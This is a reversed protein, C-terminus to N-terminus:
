GCKSQGCQKCKKCGEYSVMDGGCNLCKEYLQIDDKLFKQLCVALVKSFKEISASSKIIQDIIEVLPIRGGRLMTSVMRTIAQEEESGFRNIINDCNKFGTFEKGLAYVKKKVKIVTTQKIEKFKKVEDPDLLFAFVEYPMNNDIGIIVAYWQGRARVVDVIAPLIAKRKSRAGSPLINPKKDDNADKAILVGARSGERYITCGKCGSKWAETYVQSILDVTAEKPLNVTVSISHDVYQQMAGQMRIKELWDVDATTANHYPSQKILEQLDDYPMMSLYKSSEYYSDNETIHTNLYWEVLKHHVVNYEVFLDGNEDKFHYKHGVEVKRRRKYIPLFVPEIGSTTQTMLSVTGTPAITLCHINRRGYRIYDRYTSSDMDAIMRNIFPSYREKEWNWIKFSGREKALQISSAYAENALTRQVLTAFQTAEKTGYTMGLAAIMDGLGTIGVGTRRTNEHNKLIKRWLNLEICKIHEPEPDYEIKAIIQKIKECELEIIDDALRQAIRAHHKFLEFDFYSDKYFPEKVYSYLNIALLICSSYPNMPIEGCPNTSVEEFEPGYLRATSENHVNDWFLIGPEASKWANYMLKKWLKQADIQKSMLPEDSDIPFCQTFQKAAEVCEMFEDTIKVSINAGTVKGTDLKADIFDEIQPHKVSCSLMLAGRRGDQCVERISHSFREMFSVMGSSTIAANNVPTGKPRIYSLDHGVGGRRKSLQVQEEDTQCIAGYSDNKNGIVFCNSLSIPLPNGIGTMSGGQPVIYKFNQFLEFIEKESLPNKFQKEIRGFERAMRDHMYDPTPELIKSVDSNQKLAYKTLYADVAIEDGRFYELALEKAAEYSWVSQNEVM